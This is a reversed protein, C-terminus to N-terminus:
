ANYHLYFFQTKREATEPVKEALDSTETKLLLTSPTQPVFMTICCCKKEQLQKKYFLISERKFCIRILSSCSLCFRWLLCNKKDISTNIEVVLTKWLDGDIMLVMKLNSNKFATSEARGKQVCIQGGEHQWCCLCRRLMVPSILMHNLMSCLGKCLERFSVMHYM